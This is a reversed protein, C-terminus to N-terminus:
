RGASAWRALPTAAEVALHRPAHEAAQPGAELVSTGIPVDGVPDVGASPDVALEGLQELAAEPGVRTEAREQSGSASVGSSSM